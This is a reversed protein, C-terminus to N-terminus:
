RTRAGFFSYLTTVVKLFSTLETWDGSLIFLFPYVYCVSSFISSSSSNSNSLWQLASNIRFSPTSPPSILWGPRCLSPVTRHIRQILNSRFQRMCKGRPSFEGSNGGAGAEYGTGTRVSLGRGELMSSFILGLLLMLHIISELRLGGSLILLRQFRASRECSTFPLREGGKGGERRAPKNENATRGM